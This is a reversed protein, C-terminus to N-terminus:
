GPFCVSINKYLLYYGKIQDKRCGFAQEFVEARIIEMGLNIIM